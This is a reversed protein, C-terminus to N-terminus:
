DSNRVKYQFIRLDVLGGVAKPDSRYHTFYGFGTVSPNGVSATLVNFGRHRWLGFDAARFVENLVKWIQEEAEESGPLRWSHLSLPLQLNSTLVDAPLCILYLPVMAHIRYRRRHSHLLGLKYLGLLFGTLLVAVGYIM